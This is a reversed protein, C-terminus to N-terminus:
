VNYFRQRDAVGRFLVDFSNTPLEIGSWGVNGCGGGCTDPVVAITNRGQYQYTAHPNPDRGTAQKYYAYALDVAQTIKGLVVPDYYDAPVLLAVHTGVYPYLQVTGSSFSHYEYPPPLPATANVPKDQRNSAAPQPPATHAWGSAKPSSAWLPAVPLSPLLLAILWCLLLAKARLSTYM